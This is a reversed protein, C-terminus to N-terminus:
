TVPDEHAASVLWHQPNAQASQVVANLWPVPAHAAPAQVSVAQSEPYTCTPFTQTELWLVQQPDPQTSQVVTYAFPMPIQLPPVQTNTEQLAPNWTPPPDQTGSEQVSEIRLWSSDPTSQPPIQTVCPRGHASPWFQVTGASQPLWRQALPTHELQPAPVCAQSLAQMEFVLVLEHPVLQM